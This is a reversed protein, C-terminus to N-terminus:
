GIKLDSIYDKSDLLVRIRNGNYIGKEYNKYVFNITMNKLEPPLNTKIYNELDFLSPFKRGKLRHQRVFTELYLQKLQGDCYKKTCMQTSDFSCSDKIVVCNNADPIHKASPFVVTNNSAFTNNLSLSLLGTLIIYKMTTNKNNNEKCLYFM